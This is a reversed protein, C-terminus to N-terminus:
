QSHNKLGPSADVLAIMMSIVTMMKLQKQAFTPLQTTAGDLDVMATLGANVM